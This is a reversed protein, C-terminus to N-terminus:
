KLSDVVSSMPNKPTKTAEQLEKNDQGLRSYFIQMEAPNLLMIDSWSFNAKSILTYAIDYISKLDDSLLIKLLQILSEDNLSLRVNDETTKFLIIQQAEQDLKLIASQMPKLIESPLHDAIHEKEELSLSAFDVRGAESTTIHTLCNLFPDIGEIHFNKPYGIEIELENTKIIKPPSLQVSLLVSVIDDISVKIRKNSSTLLLYIDSGLIISRLTLLATFKDIVNLKSYDNLILKELLYSVYYDIHKSNNNKLFKLLSIYEGVTMERISIPNKLSLVPCSFFFEGKYM